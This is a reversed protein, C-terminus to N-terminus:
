LLGCARATNPWPAWGESAQLQHAAADQVDPPYDQASGSYGLSHWTGDTFQYAGGGPTSYNGGSELQRICAFPDGAPAPRSPAPAPAPAPPSPTVPTPTPTAPAPSGSPRVTAAIGIVPAPRTAAAAAAAQALRRAQEAAVLTAVDGNVKGLNARQADEAAQLASKESETRAAEARARGLTSALVAQRARLDERTGRMDEVASRDMGAVLSLYTDYVVLDSNARLRKGLVSVSGGHTYADVAQGALRARAADQRQTAERVGVEAQRLSEQVDGLGAQASRVQRDADIVRQAQAALENTLHEAESRKDDIADGHATSRTTTAQLALVACLAVVVSV